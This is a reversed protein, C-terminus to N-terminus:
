YGMDRAADGSHIYDYAEHSWRMNEKELDTYEKKPASPGSAIAAILGVVLIIVTAVGGIQGEIGWEKVNFSKSRLSLLVYMVGGIFILALVVAM